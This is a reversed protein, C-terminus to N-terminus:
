ARHSGRSYRRLGLWVLGGLMLALTGPEPVGTVPPQAGQQATGRYFDGFFENDIGGVTERIQVSTIPDSSWFGVFSFAQDAPQLTHALLSAAGSLLTVVFTSDVCTANCGNLLVSSTPEYISFGLAYTGAVPVVDFSETGSKALYNPTAPINFYTAEVQPGTILGGVTFNDFTAEGTITFNNASVNPMTLLHSGTQAVFTAQDTFTIVIAESRATWALTVLAVLPIARRM